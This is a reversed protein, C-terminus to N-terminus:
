NRRVVLIRNRTIPRSWIRGGDGWDCMYIFLTTELLDENTDPDKFELHIVYAAAGGNYYGTGYGYFLKTEVYLPVDMNYSTFEDDIEKYIFNGYRQTDRIRAIVFKKGEESSHGIAAIDGGVAYSKNSEQDRFYTFIGSYTIDGSLTWNGFGFKYDDFTGNNIELSFYKSNVIGNIDGSVEGTASGEKITVNVYEDWSEINVTEGTIYTTHAIALFPLLFIVILLVLFSKKM